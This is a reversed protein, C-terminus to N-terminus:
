LKQAVRKSIAVNSPYLWTCLIKKGDVLWTWKPPLKCTLYPLHVRRWLYGSVYASKHIHYVLANQTPPLSHIKMSECYKFMEYQAVNSTQHITKLQISITCPLFATNLLALIM